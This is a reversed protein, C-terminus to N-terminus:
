DPESDDLNKKLFTLNVWCTDIMPHVVDLDRVSIFADRYFWRCRVKQDLANPAILRATRSNTRKTGVSCNRINHISINVGITTVLDEHDFTIASRSVDLINQELVEQASPRCVTQIHILIPTTLRNCISIAYLQRPNLELYSYTEMIGGRVYQSITLRVLVPVTWDDISYLARRNLKNAGITGRATVDGEGVHIHPRGSSLSSNFTLACIARTGAELAPSATAIASNCRGDCFRSTICIRRRKRSIQRCSKVLRGSNRDRLHFVGRSWRYQQGENWFLEQSM